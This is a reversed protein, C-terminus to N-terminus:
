GSPYDRLDGLPVARRLRVRGVPNGGGPLPCEHGLGRIAAILVFGSINM